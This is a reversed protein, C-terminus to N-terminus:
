AFACRASEVSGDLFEALAADGVSLGFRDANNRVDDDVKLRDYRPNAVSVFGNLHLAQLYESLDQCKPSPGDWDFFLGDLFTPRGKSDHNSKLGYFFTHWKEENRFPM